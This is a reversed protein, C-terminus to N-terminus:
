FGMSRPSRIEPAQLYDEDEARPSGLRLPTEKLRRLREESEVGRGERWYYIKGVLPINKMTNLDSVNEFNMVDKSADNLIGFQPPAITKTLAEGFGEKRAMVATYKTIGFMRLINNWFMDEPDIERGFIIAKLVDASGNAIASFILIKMTNSSGEAIKNIDGEM